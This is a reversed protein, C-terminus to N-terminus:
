SMASAIVSSSISIEFEVGLKRKPCHRVARLGVLLGLGIVVVALALPDLM